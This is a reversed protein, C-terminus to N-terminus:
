GDVVEETRQGGVQALAGHADHERTGAAIEGEAQARDLALAAHGDGLGGLRGGVVAHRAAGDGGARDVVHQRRGGHGLLEEAVHAASKPARRLGRAAAGGVQQGLHQVQQAVAAPVVERVVLGVGEAAADLAAHGDGPDLAHVAVEREQLAVGELDLGQEALQEDADGVEEAVRGGELRQRGFREGPEDGGM